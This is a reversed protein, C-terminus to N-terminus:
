RESSLGAATRFDLKGGFPKIDGEVRLSGEIWVLDSSVVSSFANARNKLRITGEAAQLAGAVLGITRRFLASNNKDDDTRKIFSGPQSLDPNPQWRVYGLPILWVPNAGDDPFQQFPVSGDALAPANPDFAALAQDAAISRGAIVLPNRQQAPARAGVVLTFSERVRSYQDAPDCVGFGPRPSQTEDEAYALWVEIACDSATGCRYPQFMEAPIQYPALMVVTRGFGDWGYGPQIYMDIASGGTSSPQEILQLGMAIGWTHAGLLHREEQVKGYDVAATLDEAGLYQGQYYRPRETQDIAM